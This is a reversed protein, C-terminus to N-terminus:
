LGVRGAIPGYYQPAHIRHYKVFRSMRAHVGDVNREAFTRRLYM